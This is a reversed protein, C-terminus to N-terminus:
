RELTAFISFVDNAVFTKVFASFKHFVAMCDYVTEWHTCHISVRMVQRPSNILASKWTPIYSSYISFALFIAFTLLIGWELEHVM